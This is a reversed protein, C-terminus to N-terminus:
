NTRVFVFEVGSAAVAEKVRAEDEAQGIYLLRVGKLKDPEVKAFSEIVLDAGKGSNPSAMAFALMNGALIGREVDGAAKELLRDYSGQFDETSEAPLLYVFPSNTIGKMNEGVVHSVYGRWASAEETTPVAVAQKEVKPAEDKGGCAALPLALALAVLLRSAIRATVTSIPHM